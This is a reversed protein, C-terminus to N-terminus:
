ADQKVILADIVSVGDGEPHVLVPDLNFEQITDAFDTAFCGLNVM